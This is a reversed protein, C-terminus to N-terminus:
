SYFIWFARLNTWLVALKAIQLSGSNQLFHTFTFYRKMNYKLSNIDEIPYLKKKDFAIIKIASFQCFLFFVGLM